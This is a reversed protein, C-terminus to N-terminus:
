INDHDFVNVVEVFFSKINYWLWDLGQNIEEINGAVHGASEMYKQGNIVTVNGKVQGDVQINGNKVLLDGEVVEGEPVVVINREKDIILNAQGSVSFEKSSDLWLSFISTMIFILSISAGVLIPHNKMWRKWSVSPKQQPLQKMVLNTFNSPAEIHSSSQIFAISKKLEKLHTRCKECDSLHNKLLKHEVENIEEDLYKHILSFIENKCNMM